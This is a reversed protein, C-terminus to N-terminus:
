MTARSYRDNSNEINFDQTMVDAWLEGGITQVIRDIRAEISSEKDLHPFAPISIPSFGMRRYAAIIHQHVQMGFEASEVRETDTEYNALHDLVFVKAYGRRRCEEELADPIPINGLTCYGINDIMGRDCFKVSSRIADENQIQRRYVLTQFGFLDTWPLTGNEKTKEEAIIQRAAEPVVAFGRQSLRECLTSKGTGPGGTIIYTKAM